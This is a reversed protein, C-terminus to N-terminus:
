HESRMCDFTRLCQRRVGYVASGQTRVYVPPSLIVRSLIVRSLIVRPIYFVPIVRLLEYIFTNRGCDVSGPLM